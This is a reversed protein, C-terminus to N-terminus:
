FQKRKVLMKEYSQSQRVLAASQFSFFLLSEKQMENMKEYSQRCIADIRVINTTLASFVNPFYKINIPRVNLM